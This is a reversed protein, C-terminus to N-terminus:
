SAIMRWDLPTDSNMPPFPLMSVVGAANAYSAVTPPPYSYREAKPAM